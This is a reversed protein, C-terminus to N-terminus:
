VAHTRSKESDYIPMAVVTATTSIEGGALELQTGVIAASPSVHALALSKGLRHSYCPSNVRGVVEGNLPLSEEGNVM